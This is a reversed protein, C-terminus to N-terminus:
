HETQALESRFYIRGVQLFGTYAASNRDGQNTVEAVSRAPYDRIEIDGDRAALSYPPEQVASARGGLLLTAALASASVAVLFRRAVRV